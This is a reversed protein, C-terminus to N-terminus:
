LRPGRVLRQLALDRCARAPNRGVVFRFFCFDICASWVIVTAGGDLWIRTFVFAQIPPVFSWIARLGISWFLWPGQGAFFLDV